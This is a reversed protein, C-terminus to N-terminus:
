TIEAVIFKELTDLMEEMDLAKFLLFKQIAKLLHDKILRSKCNIKKIKM